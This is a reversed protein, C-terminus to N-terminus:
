GIVKLYNTGFVEMFKDHGHEDEFKQQFEKKYKQDLKENHHVGTVHRRHHYYCLRVQMGWDQSLRADPNGFFVEHLEAYPTGCIDCVDDITPKPNPKKKM